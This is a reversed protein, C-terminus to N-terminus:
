RSLRGFSLGASRCAQLEGSDPNWTLIEGRASLVLAGADTVSSSTLFRAAEVERPRRETDQAELEVDIESARGSAFDYWHLRGDRVAATVELPFRMRNEVSGGYDDTRKNTLPSIFSSLLYGHGAHLEIIDFGADDAMRAAAAYAERVRGLDGQDM